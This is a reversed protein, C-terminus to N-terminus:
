GDTHLPLPRESQIHVQATRHIHIGKFHVHLGAFALPFLMLAKLKSVNAAIVIDLKDDNNKAKPAFKVGGGEFRNNM